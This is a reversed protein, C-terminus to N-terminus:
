FDDEEEDQRRQTEIRCAEQYRIVGASLYVMADLLENWNAEHDLNQSEEIKKAAQGLLFGTGYTKALQMIPQDCFNVRGTPNHRQRGKGTAARQYASMLANFLPEYGGRCKAWFLNQEDLSISLWRRELDSYPLCTGFFSEPEEPYRQLRTPLKQGLAQPQAPSVEVKATDAKAPPSIRNLALRIDAYTLEWERADMFLLFNAADAFHNDNIKKLCLDMCQGSLFTEQDWRCSKSPQKEGKQLGALMKDVFVKFCEALDTPLASLDLTLTDEPFAEPKSYGLESLVEILPNHQVYTVSALINRIHKKYENPNFPVESKNSWGAESLVEELHKISGEPRQTNEGSLLSRVRHIVVSDGGRAKVYGLDALKQILKAASNKYGPENARGLLKELKDLDIM